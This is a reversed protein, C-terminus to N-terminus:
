PALVKADVLLDHLMTALEAHEVHLVESNTVIIAIDATAIFQPLEHRVIEYVRRRIRNRGVASKHVKKSIVVAFRSNKRRPNSTVKITFLRSRVTDGNKYLYRLSGHGHFRLKANLM